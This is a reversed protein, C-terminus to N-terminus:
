RLRVQHVDAAYAQGIRLCLLDLVTNILPEGGNILQVAVGTSGIGVEIVVFVADAVGAPEVLQGLRIAVSILPLSLDIGDVLVIRVQVFM